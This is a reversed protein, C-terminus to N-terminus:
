RTMTASKPAPWQALGGMGDDIGQRYIRAAADCEISGPVCGVPATPVLSARMQVNYYVQQQLSSPFEMVAVKNPYSRM